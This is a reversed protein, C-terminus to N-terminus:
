TSIISFQCGHPFKEEREAGEIQHFRCWFLDKTKKKSKEEEAFTKGKKGKKTTYTTEALAPIPSRSAQSDTM